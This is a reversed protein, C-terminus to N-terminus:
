GVAEHLSRYISSKGVTKVSADIDSTQSILQGYEEAVVIKVSGFRESQAQFFGYLRSFDVVHSLEESSCKRSRAGVQDDSFEPHVHARHFLVEGEALALHSWGEGSDLCLLVLDSSNGCEELSFAHLTPQVSVLLGFKALAEEIRSVSGPHRVYLLGRGAIKLKATIGESGHPFVQSAKWAGYELLKRRNFKTSSHWQRCDVMHDPLYLKLYPSVSKSDSLAKSLFEPVWIEMDARGHELHQSYIKTKWSEEAWVSVWIEIRSGEYFISVRGNKKKYSDTLKKKLYRLM